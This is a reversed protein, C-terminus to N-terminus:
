LARAVPLGIFRVIEYPQIANKRKLKAKYEEVSYVM